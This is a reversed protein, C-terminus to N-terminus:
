KTFKVESSCTSEFLSLLIIRYTYVFGCMFIFHDTGMRLKGSIFYTGKGSSSLWSEESCQVCDTQAQTDSYFQLLVTGGSFNRNYTLGLDLFNISKVEFV